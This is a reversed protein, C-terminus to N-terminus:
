SMACGCINRWFRSPRSATRGSKTTRAAATRACSPCFRRTSSGARTSSPTLRRLRGGRRACRVSRAAASAGSSARAASVALRRHREVLVRYGVGHFRARDSDAAQVYGVHSLHGVVLLHGRQGASGTFVDRSLILARRGPEDKRFGDYLAATHFCRICTSSVADGARHPLVRREAAPRARNRRGVAFRFRASSTTTSRRGTGSRRMPIPPTSTPAPSTTPCGTSRSATPPTFSGATRSCNPRLLPRRARLAAVRQDHNRLGHRAAAQEDGQPRALVESGHGDPGDQHLLVLGGGACRRASPPRSLGQRGVAARGPELLAAQVPHLRLGGQAAHAHPRDAAQLRRYIEDANDGAIM